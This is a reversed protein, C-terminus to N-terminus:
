LKIGFVRGNVEMTADEDCDGGGYDVTRAHGDRPIVQLVGQKVYKCNLSVILASLINYDFYANNAMKLSGSGNIEYVDDSLDYPTNLGSLWVKKRSAYYSIFTEPASKPYLTDAIVVSYFLQDNGYYGRNEVIKYGKMKDGNYKYDDFTITHVSGSDWYNRTYSVLIRGTRNNNDADKCEAGFDIIITNANTDSIINPLCGNFSANNNHMAKDVIAEADNNMFEMQGHDAGFAQDNATLVFEHVPAGDRTCSSLLLLLGPIFFLGKRMNLM